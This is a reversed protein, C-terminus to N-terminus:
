RSTCSSPPDARLLKGPITKLVKLNDFSAKSEVSYLGVRGKDSFHNITSFICKKNLFCKIYNGSTQISMKYWNDTIDMDLKKENLIFWGFPKKCHYALQAKDSEKHIRFLFFGDETERFILGARSDDHEDTIRVDAEFAYDKWRKEGLYIAHLFKDSEYQYIAGDEMFWTRRNDGGTSQEWKEFNKSDNFSESLLIKGAKFPKNNYSLAGKAHSVHPRKDM